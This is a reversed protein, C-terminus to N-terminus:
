LRAHHDLNILGLARQMKVLLYNEENDLAASGLHALATTRNVTVGKDDTLEFTADRTAKVRKAIESLAWDWSKVEWDSSNPARYLVETLRSSNYQRNGLGDYEYRMNFMSSGKSCLGGENIPHDPDGELSTIEGGKVYCIAGCGGSCYPCITSVERAYEIRAPEAAAATGEFGLQSLTATGVGVGTLKLFDRRSLKLSM